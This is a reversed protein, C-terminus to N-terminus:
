LSISDKLFPVKKGLPFRFWESEFDVCREPLSNVKNLVFQLCEYVDKMMNTKLVYKNSYDLNMQKLVPKNSMQKILLDLYHDRSLKFVRQRLEVLQESSLGELYEVLREQDIHDNGSQLDERVVARLIINNWNKSSRIKNLNKELNSMLM